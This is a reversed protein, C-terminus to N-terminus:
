YWHWGSSHSWHKWCGGPWSYFYMFTDSFHVGSTPVIVEQLTSLSHLIRIGSETHASVGLLVSDRRALLLYIQYHCLPAVLPQCLLKQYLKYTIDFGLLITLRLQSKLSNLGGGSIGSLTLPTCMHLICLLIQYLIYPFGFGLVM